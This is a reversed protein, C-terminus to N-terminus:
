LRIFEFAGAAGQRGRGGDEDAIVGVMWDVHAEVRTWVSPSFATGCGRSWSVLGMLEPRDKQDRLFWVVPSGADGRRCFSSPTGDASGGMLFQATPVYESTSSNNLFRPKFM